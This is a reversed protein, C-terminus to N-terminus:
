KKVELITMNIRAWRDPLFSFVIDCVRILLLFPKFFISSGIKSLANFLLKFRDWYTFKIYMSPELIFTKQLPINKILKFNNEKFLSLNDAISQYGIHGDQDLFHEQYLQSNNKKFYNILPNSTIVDYLFVMKGNPKLVRKLEKLCIDKQSSDLHEWFFSSVVGDISNDDLPLGILPDAYICTDYILSAHELSSHSLDCGIMKFQDGFFSVGGACGLELIRSGKTFTKNVKGLYGSNILWLIFSNLLKSNTKKFAIRNLYAGEYFANEQKLFQYLNKKNSYQTNCTKCVALRDQFVLETKDQPCFLNPM